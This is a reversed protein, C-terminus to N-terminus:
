LGGAEPDEVTVRVTSNGWAMVLVKTGERTRDFYFELRNISEAGTDVAAEFSVPTPELVQGPLPSLTFSWSGEAHPMLTLAYRGADVLKGGLVLAGRAELVAGGDGFSWAQDFPVQDGFLRTAHTVRRRYSLALESRGVTNMVMAPPENAVHDAVATRGGDSLAVHVEVYEWLIRAIVGRESRVDFFVELHEKSNDELQAHSRVRLAEDGEGARGEWENFIVAWEDSGDRLEDPVIEMAYTGAALRQGEVLIDQNSSFLAPNPAGISWPDGYPVNDGFLRGERGAVASRRYQFMVDADGIREVVAAPEDLVTITGQEGELDIRPQSMDVAMRFSMHDDSSFQDTSERRDARISHGGEGLSLQGSADTWAGGRISRQLNSGWGGPISFKHRPVSRSPGAPDTASSNAYYTEDFWDYLWDITNGALDYIGYPSRGAPYARVPSSQVYGDDIDTSSNRREAFERAYSVDAFNAQSGDPPADGWPYTRGDTGRAAKEWQAETPLTFHLGTLARLWTAYAMADNWSVCLVPEDERQTVYPAQWSADYRVDGPQEVWCGEGREADTVYGTDGVFNRFQALTVPFKGIWYGSLMVRHVPQEFPEGDRSGMDFPGAPVYIMIYGDGLDAQWYGLDNQEVTLAQQRVAEFALDPEFEGNVCGPSVLLATALAARRLMPKGATSTAAATAPALLLAGLALKLRRNDQDLKDLRADVATAESM